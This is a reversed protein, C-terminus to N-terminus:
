KITQVFPESLWVNQKVVWPKLTTAHIGAHQITHNGLPKSDRLVWYNNVAFQWREAFNKTRFNKPVILPPCMGVLFSGAAIYMIAKRIRKKKKTTLDDVPNLFSLVLSTVDLNLLKMVASQVLYSGPVQCFQAVENIASSTRPPLSMGLVVFLVVIARYIYEVRLVNTSM